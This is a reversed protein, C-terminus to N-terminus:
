EGQPVSDETSHVGEQGYVLPSKPLGSTGTRLMVGMGQVKGYKVTGENMQFGTVPAQSPTPCLFLTRGAM